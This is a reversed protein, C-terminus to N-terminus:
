MKERRTLLSLMEKITETRISENKIDKILKFSILINQVDLLSSHYEKLQIVTKNYLYFLLATVLEIFIGTASSIYTIDKYEPKGSFGAMLGAFIFIIGISAIILSFWFSRINSDKVLEYYDRLNNINIIVLENFYDSPESNIEKKQEIDKKEKLLKSLDRKLIKTQQYFFAEFGISSILWLLAPIYIILSTISSMISSGVSYIIVVYGASVVPYLYKLMNVSDILKEKRSIKKLLVDYSLNTKTTLKNENQNNDM